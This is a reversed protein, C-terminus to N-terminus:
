ANSVVGFEQLRALLKQAEDVSQEDARTLFRIGFDAPLLRGRNINLGDTYYGKLIDRLPVGGAAFGGVKAAASNCAMMKTVAAHLAQAADAYAVEAQKFEEEIEANIATQHERQLKELEGEASELREQLVEKAGEAGDAKDAMSSATKEAARLLKDIESTDAETGALHAATLADKRQRKLTALAERTGAVAAIQADCREIESKIGAIEKRKAVLAQAAQQIGNM